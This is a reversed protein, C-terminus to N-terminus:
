LVRRLSSMFRHSLDSQYHRISQALDCWADLRGFTSGRATYLWPCHRSIISSPKRHGFKCHLTCSKPRKPASSHQLSKISLLLISITMVFPGEGLDVIKIRVDDQKVRDVLSGPVVLYRPLSDTHHLHNRTIVPVCQPVDLSLMAKEETTGDFGPIEFAINGQHLDLFM